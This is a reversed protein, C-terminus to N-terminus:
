WRAACAHMNSCGPMTLRLGSGGLRKNITTSQSPTLCRRATIYKLSKCINLKTQRMSGSTCRVCGCVCLTCASPVAHVQTIMEDHQLKQQKEELHKIRTHAEALACHTGM